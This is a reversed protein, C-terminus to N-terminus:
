GISRPHDFDANERAIGLASRQDRIGDGVFVHRALTVPLAGRGLRANMSEVLLDLVEAPFYAVRFSADIRHAALVPQEGGGIALHRGFTKGVDIM